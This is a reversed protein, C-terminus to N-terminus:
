GARVFTGAVEPSASSSNRAGNQLRAILLTHEQTHKHPHAQTHNMDVGWGAQLAGGTSRTAVTCLLLESGPSGNAAVITPAAIGESDLSNETHTRTKIQTLTHMRASEGWM